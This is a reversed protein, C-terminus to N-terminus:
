VGAIELQMMKSESLRSVRESLFWYFSFPFFISISCLVICFAAWVCEKPWQSRGARKLLIKKFLLTAILPSSM